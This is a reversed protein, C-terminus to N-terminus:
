RCANVAVGNLMNAEGGGGLGPKLGSRVLMFKAPEARPCANPHSDRDPLLMDWKLRAYRWALLSAGVSPAVPKM